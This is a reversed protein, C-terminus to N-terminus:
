EFKMSERLEGILDFFALRLLAPFSTVTKISWVNFENFSVFYWPFTALPIM